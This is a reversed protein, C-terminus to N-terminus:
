EGNDELTYNNNNNSNSTNHNNHENIFYEEYGEIEVAPVYTKAYIMNGNKATGINKYFAYYPITLSGIASHGIYEFSVYDYDVFDVPTQKAQCFSCGGMALVYGNYLYEEAKKLTLLKKQAVAKLPSHNETRYSWYKITFVDYLDSASVIDDKFNKSNDFTIVICDSIPVGSSYLNNLPHASLNYFYVDLSRVGYESDNTYERYVSASDFSVDFTDFLIQKIDSLSEIIEQDSQTQNVTVPKGKLNISGFSSYGIINRNELQTFSFPLSTEIELGDTLSGYREKIEYSPPSMFLTEAMKPFYKDALVKVENKDFEKQYYTEYITAYNDNPIPNIYLYQIDPTYVEEYATTPGNVGISTFYLDNPKITIDDLSSNSNSASLSGNGSSSASPKSPTEPTELTSQPTEPISHPLYIIEDEYITETDDSTVFSNDNINGLIKISPIAVLVAAVCAAITSIAVKKRRAAIRIKPSKAEAILEDDIADFANQFLNNGNM